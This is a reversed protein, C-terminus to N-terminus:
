LKAMVILGVQIAQGGYDDGYFTNTGSYVRELASVYHVGPSPIVGSMEATGSAPGGVLYISTIGGTAATTSDYGLAAFSPQSAAASTSTYRAQVTEQQVSTVFSCRYTSSGEAARFTSSNYTYSNTSTGIFATFEVINSVNAVFLKAESGGAAFGGFSFETQGTAVTRITGLLRRTATGSKVWVGDQQTIATARTTDNTWATAELTVTGANNYAWIDYPTAATFGSLSLSKETFNLMDWTSGNYLAITNGCFPTYYVTTKATQSTTIIPSGSVLTLRGDAISNVSSGNSGSTAATLRGQADVTISANTYSGPTVATNALSFTRNASLDGGGSLGTGATITTAALAPTAGSSAATLRGQADVTFSAYTYSAPTVATNALSLTRNTSLDGGGSLGTGASITTASLAPTTGSSAATIRGQADVTFGAYTYSGPTVATNDLSITRNASLDGGGTLGTGASITRASSVVSVWSMVGATTASLVDGSVVPYDTPLTYSINGAIAPSKFSQYSGIGPEYFRLEKGDLIESDGASTWRWCDINNTAVGIYGTAQQNTIYFNVGFMGILTGASAGDGTTPTTFQSFANTNHVQTVYTPTSSAGLSMKVSTTGVINYLPNLDGNAKVIFADINNTAFTFSNNECQTLYARGDAGVGWIMGKSAGSGTFTNTIQMYSDSNFGSVAGHLHQKYNPTPTGIGFRDNTADWFLQSNDQDLVGSSGFPISGTTFTSSSATTIRGQADVTINALTYSGATVGTTDLSLTRNASLDGGGTLGTGASITTSALAPATGSTASTVQGQANVTISAYTYSGATVGTSAINLTVDASLAGGGSLGTGAIVQRSTPVGGGGSGNTAATIRGFADVTIDASTYSGATVGSAAFSLTLDSALTGGGQLPATTNIARSTPVGGGGGTGTLQTEAGTDDQAWLNIDDKFYIGYQGSGSPPPTPPTSLPSANYGSTLNPQNIRFQSM